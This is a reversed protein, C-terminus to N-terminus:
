LSKVTFVNIVFVKEITEYVYYDSCSWGDFIPSLYTPCDNDAM